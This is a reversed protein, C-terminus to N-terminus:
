GGLIKKVLDQVFRGTPAVMGEPAQRSYGSDLRSAYEYKARIKGGALKTNRRANGSDIPTESVFYDYAKGPVKDLERSIRKLDATMTDSKKVIPM